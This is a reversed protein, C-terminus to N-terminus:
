RPPQQECPLYHQFVLLTKKKFSIMFLAAGSFLFSKKFFSGVRRGKGGPNLTSSSAYFLYLSGGV